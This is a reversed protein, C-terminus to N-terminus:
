AFLAQIDATPIAQIGAVSEQLAAIDSANQSINSTNTAINATNAAIANKNTTVQGQELADTYNKATTLTEGDKTDAYSKAQALIGTAADNIAEIAEENATVRASIATDDYTAAAQAQAVKKDIYGVVTTEDAVPTFEGVYAELADVDAQADTGAKKAAAIANATDGGEALSTQIAAINTENQAIRAIAATLDSAKAYQALNSNTLASNIAETIYAVVTTSTADEPLTGVYAELADIASTNAVIKSNMESADSSHSSIWDSIEKLTDFSEPADAVIEAIADAVTKKVSGAVTAEGNLTAIAQENATVKTRLETDDYGAAEIAEKVEKIYGTITTATYGEPIEGVKEDLATVADNAAKADAKAAAASALAGYVTATGAVDADTGLVADAAGAADFASADKYAAGKLGTVAVDTGDVAITGNASGATVSQVATDAKAGQAATAFDAPKKGSDIVQGNVDFSAFNGVTAGSVLSMLASLDTEPLTVEYAPTAEATIPEVKYFLLKKSDASLAVAKISAADGEDIYSKILGDYTELGAKDLFYLNAM